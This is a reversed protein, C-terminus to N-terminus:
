EDIDGFISYRILDYWFYAHGLPYGNKDMILPNKREDNPCRYHAFGDEIIYDDEVEPEEDCIICDMKILEM